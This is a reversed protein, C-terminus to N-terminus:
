FGAPQPGARFNPLDPPFGVASKAPGFVVSLPRGVPGFGVPGSRFWGFVSDFLSRVWDRTSGCRLFKSRYWSTERWSKCRSRRRRYAVDCNNGALKSAMQQLNLLARITEHTHPCVFFHVTPADYIFSKFDAGGLTLPVRRFDGFVIMKRIFLCPMEGRGDRIVLGM